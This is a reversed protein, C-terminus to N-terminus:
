LEMLPSDATNCMAVTLAGSDKANRAAALLDPSRGSQSIAIFLVGELDSQAGYVSSVSPAASSTLVHTHAEILYRAYTAAHDSSGRACTVVARPPEAALRAGRERLPSANEALQTNVALPAQVAEQYMLSPGN